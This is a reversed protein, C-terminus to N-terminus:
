KEAKVFEDKMAQRLATDEMLKVVIRGMIEAGRVIVPEIKQNKVMDAIYKSHGPYYTDGMALHLHIAPCQHSVNGIDSSGCGAPDTYSIGMDDLVSESVKTATHNWLLNDYKYGVQTVDYTTETAIAAGKFCNMIKRVVENLYPRETNRICCEVEAYDPVVNSAAGGNVVYTGIRTEPRVHQRMMDIAHLALTAGNLANRGEWPESAAHATQGHFRVRYDDLALFHSNATTENASVHVMIALDYDKFVGKECMAVKGGRLEEDPTGILDIDVPLMKMKQFATAALFSMAGNASHGCGHGIDPLADYEALLAVKLVPADSQHVVARFATPQGTFNEEVKMGLARCVTVYTKCAHYEKGSLEPDNAIKYNLQFAQPACSQLAAVFRETESM